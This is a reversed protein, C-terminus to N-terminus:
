MWGREERGGHTFARQVDRQNLYFVQALSLAMTQYSPDGEFYSHLGWAMVAGVWVMTATWAWRRMTWLGGFIVIGAVLEGAALVAQLVVDEADDPLVSRDLAITAALTVANFLQLLAILTVGFPRKARREQGAREVIRVVSLIPRM